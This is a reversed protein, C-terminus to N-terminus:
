ESNSGGLGVADKAQDLIGQKNEGTGSVSDTAKQTASKDGETTWTLASEIM